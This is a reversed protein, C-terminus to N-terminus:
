QLISIHFVYICAISYTRERTMDLPRFFFFSSLCLLSTLFPVFVIVFQGGLGVHGLWHQDQYTMVSSGRERPRQIHSAAVIITCTGGNEPVPQCISEDCTAITLEVSLKASSPNVEGQLPVHHLFALWNHPDRHLDCTGCSYCVLQSGTTGNM